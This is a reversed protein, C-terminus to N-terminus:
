RDSTIHLFMNVLKNANALDKVDPNGIFEYDNYTFSRFYQHVKIKFLMDNPGDLMNPQKLKINKIKLNSLVTSIDPETFLGLHILSDIVSYFSTSILNRKIFVSLTHHRDVHIYKTAGPKGHEDKYITYQQWWLSDKDAKLVDVIYPNLLYRMYSCRVEFEYPSTLLPQLVHYKICESDLLLEYSARPLSHTNNFEPIKYQKGALKITVQASVPTTIFFLFLLSLLSLYTKNM